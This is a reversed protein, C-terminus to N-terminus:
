KELFGTTGNNTPQVIVRDHMSKVVSLKLVFGKTIMECVEGTELNASIMMGPGLRGKLVIESDDIDM